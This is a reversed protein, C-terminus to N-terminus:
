IADPTYCLIWKSSLYMFVFHYHKNSVLTFTAGGASVNAGWTVTQNGGTAKAHFALFQGDFSGSSIDLNLGGTVPVIYQTTGDAPDLTVNAAYNISAAQHYKVGFNDLVTIM